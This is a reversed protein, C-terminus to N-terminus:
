YGGLLNRSDYGGLPIVSVSLFLTESPKIDRDEYFAKRYAIKATLCDNQYQYYANYYETFNINKNRSTSFGIKRFNDFEYGGDFSVKHITSTGVFNEIYDWKTVFNNVSTQLSISHSNFTNLNNNMAFNYDIYNDIIPELNINGVVDSKKKNMSNDSGLNEEANLRYITGLQASLIKSQDSKKEKNYELGITLSKGSEFTDSSGIRNNAFINGIDLGANTKKNM